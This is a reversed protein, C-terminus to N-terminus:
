LGEMYERISVSGVEERNQFLKYLEKVSIQVSIDVVCTLKVSGEEDPQFRKTLEVIGSYKDM